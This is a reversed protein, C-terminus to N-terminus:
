KAKQTLRLFVTDEGGKPLSEAAPSDCFTPPPRQRFDFFVVAYNKSYATAKHAQEPGSHTVADEPACEFFHAVGPADPVVLRSWAARRGIPVMVAACAQQARLLALVRPVLVFPPNCWCVRRRWDQQM